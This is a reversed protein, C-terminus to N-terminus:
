KKDISSCKQKLFGNNTSDARTHQMKSKIPLENNIVILSLQTKKRTNCFIRHIPGTFNLNEPWHASPADLNAWASLSRLCLFQSIVTAPFIAHWAITISDFDTKTLSMISFAETRHSNKLPLFSGPTIAKSLTHETLKV